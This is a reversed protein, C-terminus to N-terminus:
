MVKWKVGEATDELVIGLDKLRDRIEDALKFNKDARAKQRIEIIVDMLPAMMHDQTGKEFQFISLIEDYAKFIDAVAELTAKKPMSELYKNVGKCFEFISAIADRTNFDEDM